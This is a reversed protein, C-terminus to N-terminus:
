ETLLKIKITNCKLYNNDIDQQEMQHILQSVSKLLLKFLIKDLIKLTKQNM